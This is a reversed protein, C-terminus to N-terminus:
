QHTKPFVVIASTGGGSDRLEFRGKLDDTALTQVIRLGLSVDHGLDFNVPLGGGDDAVEIAVSDGHDILNV